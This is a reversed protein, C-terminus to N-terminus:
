KSPRWSRVAPTPAHAARAPTSRGSSTVGGSAMGAFAEAATQEVAEPFPDGLLAHWVDIAGQEDGDQSLAVAERARRGAASLVTRLTAREADTLRDLVNEGSGPVHVTGSGVVDAGDSFAADLALPHEQVATIVAYVVCELVFGPIDPVADRGWDKIMRVQHVFRGDCKQNRQQVAGIVRRTDSTDWTGEGRNAIDILDSGDRDFAPVVDFRFEGDGFDIKLAHRTREFTATPYHLVLENEIMGMAQDPGTSDDMLHAHDDAMFVVMDIDHLPSLMTKRALSGQLIAGASIKAKALWDRIEHHTEIAINREDKNLKLAEDYEKFAETVTSPM